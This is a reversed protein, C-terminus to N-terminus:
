RKTLAYIIYCEILIEILLICSLISARTNTIHIISTVNWAQKQFQGIYDGKFFTGACNMTQAHSDQAGFNGKNACVISTWIEQPFKLSPWFCHSCLTPIQFRSCTLSASKNENSKTTDFLAKLLPIAPSYFWAFANSPTCAMNIYNAHM